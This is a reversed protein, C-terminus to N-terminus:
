QRAKPITVTQSMGEVQLEAANRYIKVPRVRLRRQQGAVPITVVTERRERLPVGHLYLERAEASGYIGQFGAHLAAVLQTQEQEKEAAAQQVTAASKPKVKPNFPDRPDNTSFASLFLNSSVTAEVAAPADTKAATKNMKPGVNEAPTPAKGCGGLLGACLLAGTVLM